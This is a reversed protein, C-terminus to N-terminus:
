ARTPTPMRPSESAPAPDPELVLIPIERKTTVQYDAYAPFAAVARAWWIAKEAGKVERTTMDRRVPGDQLEVRPHSLANHYWVPDRPGGGLSAVVAYVGDHEVRMVAVKRLKGSTRGLTTLIVIPQDDLTTGQTGGSREYLDIQDRAWKQPSPEYEGTLPMTGTLVRAPISQLLISWPGPVDPRSALLTM